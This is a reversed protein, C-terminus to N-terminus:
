RKNHRRNGDANKNLGGSRLHWGDRRDIRACRSNPALQDGITLENNSLDSVVFGIRSKHTIPSEVQNHSRLVRTQNIM